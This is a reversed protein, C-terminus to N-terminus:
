RPRPRALRGHGRWRLWRKRIRRIRCPASGPRARLRCRWRARVRVGPHHRAAAGRCRRRALARATPRAPRIANAPGPRNERSRQLVEVIRVGFNEDVVVVEGRAIIRDNVLIDVPEGALRELEIVSGAGLDLM